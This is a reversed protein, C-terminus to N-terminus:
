GKMLIDIIEAKTAKSDVLIGKGEALELLETKKMKSYDSSDLEEVPPLEKTVEIEKPVENSPSSEEVPVEIVPPAVVEAPAEVAPAVVKIVPTDEPLKVYKMGVHKVLILGHKEQSTIDNTRFDSYCGGFGSIRKVVEKGGLSVTVVTGKSRRSTIRLM